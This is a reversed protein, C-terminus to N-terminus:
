RVGPAQTPGSDEQALDHFFSPGDASSNKVSVAKHKEVRGENALYQALDQLTCLAPSKRNRDGKEMKFIHNYLLTRSRLGLHLRLLSLAPTHDPTQFVLSEWFGKQTFLPVRREEAAAKSLFGGGVLRDGGQGWDVEVQCSPLNKLVCILDFVRRSICIEICQGRGVRQDCLGPTRESVVAVSSRGCALKRVGERMSKGQGCCKDGDGGGWGWERRKALKYVNNM